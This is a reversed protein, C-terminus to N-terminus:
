SNQRRQTRRASAKRVPGSSAPHPRDGTERLLVAKAQNLKVTLYHSGGRDPHILQVLRRHAERIDAEQAGPDLGLIALAEAQSMTDIGVDDDQDVDSDHGNASASGNGRRAVIKAKGNVRAHAHADASRRLYKELVAAAREALEADVVANGDTAHGANATAPLKGEPAPDLLRFPQQVLRPGYWAVVLLMVAALGIAAAWQQGVLLALLLPLSLAALGIAAWRAARVVVKPDSHIFWHILRIASVALSLGLAASAVLIPDGM